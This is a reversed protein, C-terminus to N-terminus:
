IEVIPMGRRKAEEISIYPKSIAHWAYSGYESQEIAEESEAIVLNTSTVIDDEYRMYSVMYAKKM